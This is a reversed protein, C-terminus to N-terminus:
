GTLGHELAFRVLSPLDRLGLKQMTRSRYTEVTSTSLSLIHAIEKSAKGEVVLKLVQRERDSLVSLPGDEPEAERRRVYDDVVTNAIKRSLYRQGSHVARVAEVLEQGAAEKLLYGQAGAELALHIHELTAHMSLIVVRTQPCSRLIQAAAEIGDLGPMTIDVVAVDPNTERVLRVTELGDGAEGVVAVDNQGQLIARLGDRVITHDDALFVNIPM